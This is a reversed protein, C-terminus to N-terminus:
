LTRCRYCLKRKVRIWCSQILELAALTVTLTSGEMVYTGDSKKKEKGCKECKAMEDGGEGKRKFLFDFIAM